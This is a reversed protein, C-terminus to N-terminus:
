SKWKVLIWIIRCGRVSEDVEYREPTNGVAEVCACVGGIQVDTGTVHESKPEPEDPASLKCPSAVGLQIGEDLRISMGQFNQVPILASTVM